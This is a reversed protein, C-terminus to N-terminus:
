TQNQNLLCPMSRVLEYMASLGAYDRGLWEIVNPMMMMAFDAFATGVNAGESFFYILIKTRVVEAKNKNRNIHLLAAINCPIYDSDSDRAVLEYLTHNSAVISAISANNCLIKGYADWVHSSIGPFENEDYLNLIELDTSETRALAKAFHLAFSDNTRITHAYEGLRLVKLRTSKLANAFQAWGRVSLIDIGRLTLTEIKRTVRLLRILLKAGEDGISNNDLIMTEASSRADLLKQFFTIWGLSTISRNNKMDLVKLSHYTALSEVLVETGENDINNDSVYLNELTFEADLLLRFCKTWSASTISRNTKLDLTTLATSRTLASVIAIAGDDDINTKCMHFEEITLSSLGYSLERWGDTTISECDSVNLSRLQLMNNVTMSTGLSDAGEEGINNGSLDIKEVSCIPNSMYDASFTQWGIPTVLRLCSLDLEKLTNNKMLGNALIQICEDDLSNKHLTLRQINCADIKLLDGLAACGRRGIQNYSLYLDLLHCLGHIATLATILDAACEDGLHNYSFNIRELRITKYELLATILSPVTMSVNENWSMEICRLNHNHELFPALISFIDLRTFDLDELELHEISRNKAVLKFFLALTDIEYSIYSPDVVKLTRLLKSSGIASAIEGKFCEADEVDYDDNANDVEDNYDDTDIFNNVDDSIIDGDEDIGDGISMIIDDDDDDLVIVDDDDDDDDDDWGGDSDYSDNSGEESDNDHEGSDDDDYYDSMYVSLGVIAPDNRLLRQIVADSDCHCEVDPPQYGIVGGSRQQDRDRNNAGGRGM